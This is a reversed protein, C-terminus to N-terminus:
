RLDSDTDSSVRNISSSLYSMEITVFDGEATFRGHVEGPLRTSTM